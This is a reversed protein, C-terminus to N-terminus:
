KQYAFYNTKVTNWSSTLLARVEATRRRIAETQEGQYDPTWMMDSDIWAYDKFCVFGGGDGFADNGALYAPDYNLHFLNAVTPLIDVSSTVKEVKEPALKESYIFFPTNCLHYEDEVGKLDMVFETDTLYKSYHDAFLILTTNHISGDETMKQILGGIFADTEQAHAIARVFQNRTDENDTRIGSMEALVKADGLHPGSISARAETYPGHGSYTIIYNFYPKDHDTMKKYGGLLTTDRTQRGTLAMEDYGNYAEYGWQVHVVQRNYYKGSLTHYSNAAYGKERFLNPLSNPYVNTAYTRASTGTVPLYYGINFAFETNFTGASLFLPTYHNQFDVSKQKLAYLNPMFDETIMWSDISELLIAVANQGEVAGTMRNEIREHSKQAYYDDLAGRMAGLNLLDNISLTLSRFLYQYNGCIMMAENPDTFETYYAYRSGPTYVDTWEFRGETGTRHNANHAIVIGVVSPIFLAVVLVFLSWHYHTKKPALFIALCGLALSFLIAVYVLWSFTLYQVSVFAAGDEAFALDSFALFSGAVHYLIAHVFTLIGFALLIVGMVIRKALGPILLVVACFILSWASTFLNPVWYFPSSSGAGSHLFRFSFDLFFLAVFFVVPSLYAGFRDRFACWKEKM